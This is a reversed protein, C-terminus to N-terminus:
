VEPDARAHARLGADPTGGCDRDGQVRLGGSSAGIGRRAQNYIVKRRYKPAFVIRCKSMRKTHSLGCVTRAM